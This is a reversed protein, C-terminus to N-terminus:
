HGSLGNAIDAAWPDNHYIGAPLRGPNLGPPPLPPLNGPALVVRDFAETRGDSWRALFREGAASRRRSGRPRHDAACGSGRCRQEVPRCSLPWLGYPARIDRCRGFGHEALWRAFHERDDPFASMNGARVNLLHSDDAASYAVGRALQDRRREALTVRASGLRLLNVALMTGSYGGGVILVHESV